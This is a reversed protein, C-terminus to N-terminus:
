RRCSGCTPHVGHNIWSLTRPWYLRCRFDRLTDAGTTRTDAGRAFPSRCERIRRHSGLQRGGDRIPVHACNSLAVPCLRGMASVRLSVARM